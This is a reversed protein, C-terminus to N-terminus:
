LSFVLVCMFAIGIFAGFLVELIWHAAKAPVKPSWMEGHNTM